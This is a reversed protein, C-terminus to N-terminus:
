AAARERRRRCYESSSSSLRRAVHLAGDGDSRLAEAYSVPRRSADREEEIRRDPAVRPRSAGTAPQERM